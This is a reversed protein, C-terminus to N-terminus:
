KDNYIGELVKVNSSLDYGAEALKQTADYRVGICEMIKDCWLDLDELEVFSINGSINSNRDVRDSVICPIGAAQAEILVLPIGEYFSPLLLCDASQLYNEIDSKVGMFIVNNQLSLDEIKNRIQFEECGEGFLYLKVDDVKLTIKKLLELTFLHNKVPLFRGIQILSIKDHYIIPNPPMKFRNINIANKIVKYDRDFMWKGASESCALCVDAYKHIFLRNIYHIPLFINSYSKTSHSHVIVKISRKQKIKKLILLPFVYVLSNAHIEVTDYEDHKKLFQKTYFYNQVFHRPFSPAMYVKGGIEKIETIYPGQENNDRILFDFQFKKKNIQRYHNMIYSEAGGSQMGNIIHLIRQM